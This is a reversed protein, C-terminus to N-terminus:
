SIICISSKEKNPANKVQQEGNHTAGDTMEEAILKGIRYKNLMERAAASHGITEFMATADGGVHKSSNCCM